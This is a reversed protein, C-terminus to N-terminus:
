CSVPFMPHPTWPGGFSRHTLGGSGPAGLHSTVLEGSHGCLGSSALAVQSGPHPRHAVGEWEVLFCLCRRGHSARTPGALLSASGMAGEAPPPGRSGEQSARGATIGGLPGLPLRLAWERGQESGRRGPTVTTLVLTEPSM